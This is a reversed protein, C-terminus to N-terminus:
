EAALTWSADQRAMNWEKRAAVLDSVREAEVTVFGYGKEFTAIRGGLGFDVTVGDRRLPFPM